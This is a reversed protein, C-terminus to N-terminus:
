ERPWSGAGAHTVAGERAPGVLKAYKELVGALREPARPVHAARRAAVETESIMLDITRAACDIRVQDGDCVLAIPGGAAAEPGVYGVMM